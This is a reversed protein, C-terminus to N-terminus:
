RKQEAIRVRDGWRVSASSEERVRGSGVEFGKDGGKVRRGGELVKEQLARKCFCKWHGVGGEEVRFLSAPLTAFESTPLSSSIHDGCDDMEDLEDLVSDGQLVM